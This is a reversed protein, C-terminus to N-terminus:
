RSSFPNISTYCGNEARKGCILDCLILILNHYSLYKITYLLVWRRHLKELKRSYILVEIDDLLKALSRGQKENQPKKQEASLQVLIDGFVGHRDALWSQKLSNYKPGQKLSQLQKSTSAPFSLGM